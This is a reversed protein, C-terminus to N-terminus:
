LISGAAAKKELSLFHNRCVRGAIDLLRGIKAAIKTVEEESVIYDEKYRAQVYGETLLQFLHEEHENGRRFLSALEISLRNTYRRLKDLNHTTPKYGNFVLLIAQYIQEAAQHLLFMATKWEKRQMNFTASNFFADAQGAWREFDKEATQRVEEFNPLAPKGLPITGADYVLIGETLLMNFFYQRARIQRNVYAIDHIVTTIQAVDRCSNECQDQLQYDSRIESRGTVVLLDFPTLTSPLMQTYLAADGAVSYVGFLIIKEPHIVQVIVKIAADLQRRQVPSLHKLSTNM